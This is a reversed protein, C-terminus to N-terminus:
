LEDRGQRDVLEYSVNSKVVDLSAITLPLTVTGADENVSVASKDFAVFSESEDFTPLPNLNCGALAAVAAVGAIYKLINKM